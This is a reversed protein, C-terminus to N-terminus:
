NILFNWIIVKGEEKVIINNEKIQEQETESAGNFMPVALQWMDTGVIDDIFRLTTILDSKSSSVTNNNWNYQSILSSSVIGPVISDGYPTTFKLLFTEM